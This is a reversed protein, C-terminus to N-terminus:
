RRRRGIATAPLRYEGAAPAPGGGWAHGFVLELSLSFPRSASGGTLQDVFQRLTGKGTLSARRKRLSNRSATRGFDRFLSETDRYQLALTDVDLVPDRLGCRVLADGMDHMDPFERVHLSSDVKSWADRLERFSDRGLTSFVFLGDKRLVRAAEAFVAPHDDIWPLLLNAYVLDISGTVLPLRRADAQLDRAKSLWSRNRQGQRLMAASRDIGVILAKPFRRALAKRDRGTACGLNVIRSAEVQIPALREFLGQAAHRPVFDFEDFNRAAQGIRRDADKGNLAGQEDNMQM